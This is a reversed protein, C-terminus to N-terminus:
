SHAGRRHVRDQDPPGDTTADFQIKKHNVAWGERPRRSLRQAFGRRPHEAAWARLWARLAAEPDGPDDGGAATAARAWCGIARALKRVVHEPTHRRRSAM